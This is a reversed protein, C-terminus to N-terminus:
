TLIAEMFGRGEQKMTEPTNDYYSWVETVIGLKQYKTWLWGIFWGDGGMSSTENYSRSSEVIRSIRDMQEETEEADQCRSAASGYEENTSSHLDFSWYIDRLNNQIYTKMQEIEEVNTGDWERNWNWGRVDRHYGDNVGDPNACPIFHFIYEQTYELGDGLVYDIAGDMHYSGQVEGPHQRTMSLVDQKKSADISPDTIRVVHMDRGEFSQGFVETEVLDPYDADLQDVRDVTHGYPYPNMNSIFVQDAAFTQSFGGDIDEDMRGWDRNPLNSTYRLNYNEPLRNADSRNTIQFSVTTDAVGDVRFHFYGNAGYSGEDAIEIDIHNTADDLTLNVSGGSDFNTTATIPM